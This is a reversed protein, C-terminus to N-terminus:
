STTKVFSVVASAALTARMLREKEVERVHAIENRVPAIDAVANNLAAKTGPKWNFVRSSVDWVLSHTLLPVLQGMYLYDVISLADVNAPRSRLARGLSERERDSLNAEIRSAAGAEYKESYVRRVAQRLALEAQAIDKWVSETGSLFWPPALPAADAEGGLQRYAIRIIDAMRVRRERLFEPYSMSEWHPPLGHEALSRSWREDGLNLQRRLAPVYQVPSQSSIDANDHWVVDALNAVQNILRRDNVSNRKLWAAPFLHHSEAASRGANASPDSLQHITVDSFLARSGLVVQSAKFALAVPSTSRPTELLAPLTHTWFDNTLFEGLTRDLEAVFDEPNTTQVSGLRALDREFVTESSSSYRATLLTGFVWRSIVQGLLARPVGIRLGRVYLAYANVIASKSSIFDESVFGARGVRMLYDRWTTLNMCEEVAVDLEALRRKRDEPEAEGTVPDVGRLFRYIALMRARGFAVACAARLLQQSDISISRGESMEKASSEIRDRLAGHFVSLLTLVFDSQRLRTGQNNIRVFIEAVDEETTDPGGVSATRRIMVTPFRYDGIAHARALNHEVAEEYQPSVVKGSDGLRNLLERRIQFPGKAGMWLDTINELFEPDNRTAADAVEFRGDRPRFAIQIKYRGGDQGVVEAGRFVAYLSTLRQQGDIVLTSAKTSARDSGVMRAESDASAQWFVLTGVPFGVFLSDLLDRVKTDEWVFPRQLDPLAIRDREIEDVLGLISQNGLEFIPARGKVVPDKSEDSDSPEGSDVEEAPEEEAVPQPLARGLVQSIYEVAEPTHDSMDVPRRILAMASDVFSNFRSHLLEFAEKAHEPAITLLRGSPISRFDADKDDDAGLIAREEPTIDGQIAIRVRSKRFDLAILRGTLLRLGRETERVLWGGPREEDSNDIAYAMLQLVSDRVKIDAVAEEVKEQIRIVAEPRLIWSKTADDFKSAEKTGEGRRRGKVFHAVAPFERSLYAVDISPPAKSLVLLGAESIRFIGAGVPELLGAKRLYTSTWAVRNYLRTQGSKLLVQREDPPINFADGLKEVAEALSHTERDACLRLLPLMLTQFDPIAM